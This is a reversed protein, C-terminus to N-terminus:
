AEGRPRNPLVRVHNEPIPVCRALHMGLHEIAALLGPRPDAMTELQRLQFLFESWHEGPLQREIGHDAIAVIRRELRSWFILIGTRAPTGIVGDLFTLRAADLVQQERRRKSTLWRRLVTEESLYTGLGFILALELPIWDPHVEIQSHHLIVVLLVLAFFAGVLYSVDRYSGSCPVVAVVIEAGSGAEAREITSEVRDAFEREIPPAIGLRTKLLTLL